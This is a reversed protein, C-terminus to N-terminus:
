GQYGEVTSVAPLRGLSTPSMSGPIEPQKKALSKLIEVTQVVKQPM